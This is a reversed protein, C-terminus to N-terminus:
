LLKKRFINYYLGFTLNLQDMASEKYYSDPYKNSNKILDGFGYVYRFETFIEFRGAKVSIGGGGLLGYEFRNDKVTNFDYPVSWLVGNTNSVLQEESSGLIMSAYPGVNFFIFAKRNFLPIYPQWLFPLEIMQVSRQYSSDSGLRPLLKYGKENYNLDIQVAGVYDDGGRYRYSLGVIPNIGLM